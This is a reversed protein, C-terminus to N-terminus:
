LLFIDVTIADDYNDDNNSIRSLRSLFLNYCFSMIVRTKCPKESHTVYSTGSLAIGGRM